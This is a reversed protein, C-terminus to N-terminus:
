VTYRKEKEKNNSYICNSLQMLKIYVRFAHITRYHIEM